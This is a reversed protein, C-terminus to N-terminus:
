FLASDGAARVIFHKQAAPMEVEIPKRSLAACGALLLLAAGLALYRLAVM